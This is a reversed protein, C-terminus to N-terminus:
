KINNKNRAAKPPPHCHKLKPHPTHPRHEESSCHSCINCGTDLLRPIRSSPANPHPLVRTIYSCQLPPKPVGVPAPQCRGRAMSSPAPAAESPAQHSRQPPCPTGAPTRLTDPCRATPLGSPPPAGTPPAFEKFSPLGQARPQESREGREAGLWLLSGEKGAPGRAEQGGCWDAGMHSCLLVCGPVTYCGLPQRQRQRRTRPLAGGVWLSLCVQAPTASIALPQPQDLCWQWGAM